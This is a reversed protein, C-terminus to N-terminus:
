FPCCKFIMKYSNSSKVMKETEGEESIAETPKQFQKSENEISITGTQANNQSVSINSAEEATEVREKQKM